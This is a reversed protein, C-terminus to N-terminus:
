SMEASAPVLWWVKYILGHQAIRGLQRTSAYFESSVTKLDNLIFSLEHIRIRNKFILINEM